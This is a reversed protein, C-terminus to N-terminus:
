RMLYMTVILIIIGITWVILNRRFRRAAREESTLQHLEMEEGGHVVTKVPDRLSVVEGDETVLGKTDGDNALSAALSAGGPLAVQEGPAM